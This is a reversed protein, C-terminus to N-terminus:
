KEKRKHFDGIGLFRLMTAMCAGIMSLANNKIDGIQLLPTNIGDNKAM